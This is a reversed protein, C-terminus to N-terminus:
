QIARIPSSIDVHPQSEKLVKRIKAEKKKTLLQILDYDLDTPKPEYKTVWAETRPNDKDYLIRSGDHSKVLTDDTWFGARTMADQPAEHLNSLDPMALTPMYFRFVVRVFDDIIFHRHIQMWTKITQLTPVAYKKEFDFSPGIFPQGTLQDCSTCRDGRKRKIQQGNKKTWPRGPIVLSIWKDEFTNVISRDTIIKEKAM